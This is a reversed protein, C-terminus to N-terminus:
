VGVTRMDIGNTENLFFYKLQTLRALKVAFEIRTLLSKTHFNASGISYVSENPELNVYLDVTKIIWDKKSVSPSLLREPYKVFRFLFLFVISNSNQM